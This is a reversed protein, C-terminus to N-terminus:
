QYKTKELQVMINDIRTILDMLRKSRIFNFELTHQKFHILLILGLEAHSSHTPLWGERVFLNYYYNQQVPRKNWGRQQLGMKRENNREMTTRERVRNLCFLVKRTRKIVGNQEGGVGNNEKWRMYEEAARPRPQITAPPHRTLCHDESKCGYQRDANDAENVASAGSRGVWRLGWCKRPTKWELPVFPITWPGRFKM